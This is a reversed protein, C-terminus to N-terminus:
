KPKHRPLPRHLCLKLLELFGLILHHFYESQEPCFLGLLHLLGSRLLFDILGLKQRPWLHHHVRVHDGHHGDCQGHLQELQELHHNHCDVPEM